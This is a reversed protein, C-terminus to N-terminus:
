NERIISQTLLIENAPNGPTSLREGTVLNYLGIYLHYPKALSLNELTLTMEDAIIEGPDWLSAPYQGSGLPGDRQAVIAGTADRLHIFVSWDVTTQTISEWYLKLHLQKNELHLEYGQLAISPPDGLKVALPHAPNLASPSLIMGPPPGGVKIPGITVNTQDVAQGDVVLPLSVAEGEQKLYLWAFDPLERRRRLSSRCPLGM